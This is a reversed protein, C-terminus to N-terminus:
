YNIIFIILKIISIFLNLYIFFVNFHQFLIKSSNSPPHGITSSRIPFSLSSPHLEGPSHTVKSQRMQQQSGVRQIQRYQKYIILASYSYILHVSDIQRDIQRTLFVNYIVSRRNSVCAVCHFSLVCLLANCCLLFFIYFVTCLLHYQWIVIPVVVM